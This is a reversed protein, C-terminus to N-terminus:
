LKYIVFLNPGTGVRIKVQKDDAYTNKFVFFVDDDSEFEIADLVMAHVSHDSGVECAAM